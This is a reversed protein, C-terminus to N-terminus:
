SISEPINELDDMVSWYLKYVLLRYDVKEYWDRMENWDKCNRMRMTVIPFSM